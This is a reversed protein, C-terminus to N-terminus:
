SRSSTVFTLRSTPDIPESGFHFADFSTNFKTACPKTSVPPTANVTPAARELSLSRPLQYSRNDEVAV